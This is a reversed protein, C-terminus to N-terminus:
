CDAIAQRAECNTSSSAPASQTSASCAAAAAALSAAAKCGGGAGRRRKWSPLYPVHCCTNHDCHMRIHWYIWRPQACPWWFVVTRVTGYWQMLMPAAKRSTRKLMVTCFCAHCSSEIALQVTNVVPGSLTYPTLEGGRCRWFCCAQCCKEYYAKGHRRNGHRVAHILGAKSQKVKSSCCCVDSCM